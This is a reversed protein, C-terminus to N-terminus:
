KIIFEMNYPSKGDFTNKYSCMWTPILGSRFAVTQSPINSSATGYYPVADHEMIMVALNSVLCSAIGVNRFPPLVDIGIQWMIKSDVSAGAMGVIDKGKMAYTVLCDPRAHNKDYQIANNFGPLKYLEHIEKGEKVHFTYENPCPLKRITKCDPVYYLSHGHLFPAFFLDDRSKNMIIPEIKGLIDEDGSVVIGKGMTAIELYPTQREFMRRGENLKARCFVIGDNLFDQADCNMDLALQQRVIELIKERNFDM